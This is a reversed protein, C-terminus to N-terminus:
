PVHAPAGQCYVFDPSIMVLKRPRSRSRISTSEVNIDLAPEAALGAALGVALGAIIGGTLLLNPGHQHCSDLM